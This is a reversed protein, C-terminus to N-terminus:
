TRSVRATENMRESMNKPDAISPFRMGLAGRAATIANLASRQTGIMAGTEDKAPRICYKNILVKSSSRVVIKLKKRAIDDPKCGILGKM